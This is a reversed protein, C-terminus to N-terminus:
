KKFHYKLNIWNAILKVRMIIKFRYLLPKNNFKLRLRNIVSTKDGTIKMKYM